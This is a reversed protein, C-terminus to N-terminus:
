AGWSMETLPEPEANEWGMERLWTEMSKLPPYARRLAAIDAEYGEDNFWRVTRVMEEDQEKGNSPEPQELTVPRGIVRTFIEVMQENTQEDGALEIAQGIYEAPNEFALVAYAGIDDVAIRQLPTEPLLGMGPLTGNTIQPRSWNFNDMFAVPRLITAPIDMETIYREIQWKSEFHALGSNREAGGVSSFVFHQVGAAQAADALNKGQRIEGEAGVGPLWFNQVSFIGYVGKAAADLSARDDMDGEVVEAGADALAQAAPSDSSRTL